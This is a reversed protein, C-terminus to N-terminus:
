LSVAAHFLSVLRIKFAAIENQEALLPVVVRATNVQSLISMLVVGGGARGPAAQRAVFGYFAESRRDCYRPPPVPQEPASESAYSDIDLGELIGLESLLQATDTGFGVSTDYLYQNLDDWSLGSLTRGTIGANLLAVHITGVVEERIFHIGVDKQLLRKLPGLLGRHDRMFMDKVIAVLEDAEALLEDLTRPDGDLLKMRMRSARLLDQHSRLERLSEPRERKTYRISEYLFASSFPMLMLIATPRIPELRPSLVLNLLFEADAAIMSREVQGRLDSPISAALRLRV